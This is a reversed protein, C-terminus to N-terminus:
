SAGVQRRAGIKVRRLDDTTWILREDEYDNRRLCDIVDLAKDNEEIVLKV